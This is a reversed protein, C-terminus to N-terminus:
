EGALLTKEEVDKNKKKDNDSDDGDVVVAEEEAAQNQVLERAHKDGKREWCGCAIGMGAPPNEM